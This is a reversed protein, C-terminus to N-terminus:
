SCLYVLHKLAHRSCRGDEPMTISYAVSYPGIGISTSAAIIISYTYHPHLDTLVLSKAGDTVVGDTTSQFTEGTETVSTNVTYQVIIGNQLDEPPPRWMVMLTRSDTAIATINEPFGSPVIHLSPLYLFNHVRGHLNLKYGNLTVVYVSCAGNFFVQSVVFSLFM